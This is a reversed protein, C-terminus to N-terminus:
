LFPNRVELADFNQENQFDESYLIGCDAELAGAVILADYWHVHFRDVLDLARHFLSASSHVACLPLLVAALFQQAEKLGMSGHSRKHAVNLFEQVVQYSIVGMGTQRAVRLLHAAQESKKPSSPDFFYVVVNTDLFFRDNM